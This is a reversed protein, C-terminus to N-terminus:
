LTVGKVRPDNNERAIALMQRSAELAKARSTILDLQAEDRARIATELGEDTTQDLVYGHYFTELLDELHDAHKQARVAIRRLKQVQAQWPLTQDKKSLYNKTTANTNM